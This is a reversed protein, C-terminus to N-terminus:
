RAATQLSPTPCTQRRQFNPRHRTKSKQLSPGIKKFYIRGSRPSSSIRISKSTANVSHMRGVYGEHKVAYINLRNVNPILVDQVWNYKNRSSADEVLYELLDKRIIYTDMGILSSTPMASNMEMDIVRGKENIFIRTDQFRIEDDLLKAQENYLM